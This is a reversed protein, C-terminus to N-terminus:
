PAHISDDPEFTYAWTVPLEAIETGEPSFASLSFRLVDGTRAADAGGDMNLRAAPFPVVEYTVQERVGEVSAAVTMTGETHATVAGFADVTAVTPDSSSWDVEPEPRRTGDAHFASVRHALTTGVYLSRGRASLAVRDVGPWNVEVPITVTPVLGHADPAVAATAVIEFSGTSLAHVRGDRLQLARRPAAFRVAVDVVGGDADLATVRLPASAGVTVDIRDPEASLRVPGQQAGAPVAMLLTGTVLLWTPRPSPPLLRRNM